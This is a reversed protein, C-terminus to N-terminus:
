QKKKKSRSSTVIIPSNEIKELTSTSENSFYSQIRQLTTEVGVLREHLQFFKQNTSSIHADLRTTMEPNEASNPAPPIFTVKVQSSSKRSLMRVIYFLLHLVILIIAVGALFITAENILAM